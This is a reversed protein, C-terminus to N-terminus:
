EENEKKRRGRSSTSASSAPHVEEALALLPDPDSDVGQEGAGAGTSPGTVPAAAAEVTTTAPQVNFWEVFGAEALARRNRPPLKAAAGASIVDGAKYGQFRRKVRGGFQGIM